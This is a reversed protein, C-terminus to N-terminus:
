EPEKGTGAKRTVKKATRKPAAKKTTKKVTKRASQKGPTKRAAKKAQKRDKAPGQASERASAGEAKPRKRAQKKRPREKAAEGDRPKEDRDLFGVEVKPPRPKRRSRKRPKETEAEGKAPPGEVSSAPDTKAKKKEPKKEPKKEKGSKEGVKQTAKKAAKKTTKRAAKKAQRRQRKAQQEKKWEEEELQEEAEIYERPVTYPIPQPEPYPLERVPDQSPEEVRLPRLIMETVVNAFPSQLIQEVAQAVAEPDIVAEPRAGPRSKRPLDRGRNPEPSLHCVKVGHERLEHFLVDGMWKLGGSAAAGAAGGRSTEAYPSGLQILYGQLQKLTGALTKIMVLPCLLNIRLIREIEAADMELFPHRGFYKANNVVLFVGEETELIKSCAKEVAESDALDCAVPRFNVNNLPCDSYDGGLGYVRFGLQILRRSIALGLSSSAGTVIAIDM